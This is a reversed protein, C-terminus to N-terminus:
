GQGNPLLVARRLGRRMKLIPVAQQYRSFFQKATAIKHSTVVFVFNAFTFLLLRFRTFRSGRTCFRSATVVPFATLFVFTLDTIHKKPTCFLVFISGLFRKIISIRSIKTLPRLAAKGGRSHRLKFRSLTGYMFEKEPAAKGGEAAAGRLQRRLRGM